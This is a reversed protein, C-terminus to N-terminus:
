KLLRAFEKKFGLDGTMRILRPLEMCQETIQDYELPTPERNLGNLYEQYSIFLNSFSTIRGEECRFYLDHAIAVRGGMIGAKALGVAFSLITSFRM